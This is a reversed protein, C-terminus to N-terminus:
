GETSGETAGGTQDGTSKETVLAWQAMNYKKNWEKKVIGMAELEALPKYVSRDTRKIAQAIQHASKRKRGQLYNEIELIVEAPRGPAQVEHGTLAVLELKGSRKVFTQFVRLLRELQVSDDAQVTLRIQFRTM